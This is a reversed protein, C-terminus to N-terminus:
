DDALQAPNWAEFAASINSIDLRSSMNQVGHVPATIHRGTAKDIIEVTITRDQATIEGSVLIKNEIIGRYITQYMDRSVQARIADLAAAVQAGIEQSRRVAKGTSLAAENKRYKDEVGEPVSMGSLTKGDTTYKEIYAIANDYSEVMRRDEPTVAEGREMRKKVSEVGKDRIRNDVTGIGTDNAVREVYTNFASQAKRVANAANVAAQNSTVTNDIMNGFEYNFDEYKVDGGYTRQQYQVKTGTDYSEVMANLKAAENQKERWYKLMTMLQKFEEERGVFEKPIGTGRGFYSKELDGLAIELQHERSQFSHRVGNKDTYDSQAKIFGHAEGFAMASEKMYAATAEAAGIGEKNALYGKEDMGALIPAFRERLPGPLNSLVGRAIGEVFTLINSLTAAISVLIGKGIERFTSALDRWQAAVEEAAKWEVVTATDRPKLASSDGDIAAMIADFVKGGKILNNNIEQSEGRAVSIIQKQKEASILGPNQLADLLTYILDENGATRGLTQANFRMADAWDLDKRFLTKGQLSTGLIVDLIDIGLADTDTYQGISYQAMRSILAENNPLAANLPAIKGVMGAIDGGTVPDVLKNHISYLYEGIAGESLGGLRGELSQFQQLREDTVGLKAGKNSMKRVDEALAPLAKLFNVMMGVATTIASLLMGIAGFRVASLAKNLLRGGATKNRNNKIIAKAIPNKKNKKAWALAAENSMTRRNLRDEVSTRVMAPTVAQMEWHKKYADWRAKDQPSLKSATTAPLMPMENNAIIEDIRRSTAEANARAVSEKSAYTRAAIDPRSAIEERELRMAQNMFAKRVSDTGNLYEDWNIGKSTLFKKIGTSENKFSQRVSAIAEKGTIPNIAGQPLAIRQVRGDQTISGGLSEILRTLAKLRLKDGFFEGSFTKYSKPVSNTLSFLGEFGRASEIQKLAKDLDFLVKDLEAQDKSILEFTQTGKQQKVAGERIYVNVLNQVDRLAEKLSDAATLLKGKPIANIDFAVTSSYYQKKGHQNAM